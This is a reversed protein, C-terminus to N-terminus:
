LLGARTDHLRLCVVTHMCVQWAKLIVVGMNHPHGGGRGEGEKVREGGEPQDNDNLWHDESM